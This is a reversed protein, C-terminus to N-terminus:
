CSMVQATDSCKEIIEVVHSMTACGREGSWEGGISRRGRGKRTAIGGVLQQKRPIPPSIRRTCQSLYVRVRRRCVCVDHNYIVGRLLSVFLTQHDHGTTLLSLDCHHYVILLHSSSVILLHSSSFILLHLTTPLCQLSRCNIGM